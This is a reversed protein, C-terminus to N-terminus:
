GAHTLWHCSYSLSYRSVEGYAMDRLVVYIGRLSKAIDFVIGAFDPRHTGGLRDSVWNYATALAHVRYAEAWTATGARRSALLDNVEKVLEPDDEM